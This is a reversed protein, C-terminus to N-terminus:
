EHERERKYLKSKQNAMTLVGPYIFWRGPLPCVLKRSSQLRETFDWLCKIFIDFNVSWFYNMWYPKGSSKNKIKKNPISHCHSKLSRQDTTRVAVGLFRKEGIFNTTEWFSSGHCDVKNIVNSKDSFGGIDESERLLLPNSGM